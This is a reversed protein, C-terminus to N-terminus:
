RENHKFIITKKNENSNNPNMENLRSRLLNVFQYNKLGWKPAAVKDPPSSALFREIAISRPIIRIIRACLHLYRELSYPEVEIKMETWAKYLPTGKIIQLQHLKISDIPLVVAKKVTELVMDDTEGPLGAILHLGTHVGERALKETTQVTTEWTHGRGVLRLTENFSTEAGLEVFLRTEKSLRSLLSLTRSDICDPRTGVVIGVVDPVAIAERFIRELSESDIGHTTTFSQFYALYKMEPYKRSFFRKGNELQRTISDNTLCYAPTFTSNDCYICGSTGITGDRNPCSSGSNVSIKQVKTAPFFRSLYASYDTYDKEM